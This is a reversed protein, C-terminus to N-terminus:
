RSPYMTDIRYKETWGHTDYKGFARFVEEPSTIGSKVKEMAEEGLFNKMHGQDVLKERIDSSYGNMIMEKITDDIKM